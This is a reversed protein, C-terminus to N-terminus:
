VDRKEECKTCYEYTETFGEYRKYKHNCRYKLLARSPNNKYVATCASLELERLLGNLDLELQEAQRDTAQKMFHNWDDINVHAFSTKM